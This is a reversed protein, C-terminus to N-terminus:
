RSCTSMEFIKRLGSSTALGVARYAVRGGERVILAEGVFPDLLSM